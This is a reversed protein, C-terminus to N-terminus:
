IQQCRKKWKISCVAFLVRRAHLFLYRKIKQRYGMYSKCNNLENLYCRCKEYFVAVMDAMDDEVVHVAYARAVICSIMHNVNVAQLERMNKEEFFYQRELLAEFTDTEFSNKTNLSISDMRRRYYYLYDPLYVIRQADCIIKYTLFEDEHLKGVPFRYKQFLERKYIKACAITTNQTGGYLRRLAEPTTLTCASRSQEIDKEVYTGDRFEKYGAIVLDAKKQIIPTMMKQIMEIHIYDDSDVFLLYEGTMRDVGVNRAESLGGNTKHIVKIRNDKSAYADCAEGSGDSSGDDVLIIELASYTQNIVSQLCQALYQKVNYVPIVVSVLPKKNDLSM